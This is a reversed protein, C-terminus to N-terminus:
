PSRCSTAREFQVTNPGFAILKWGHYTDIPYTESVGEPKPPRNVHAEINSLRLIRSVASVYLDGDRFAVGVPMDLKDAIVRLTRPGQLPIAYVKGAHMSGVFLMTKGLAMQRANPVRAFLEVQFGPPLKLLSLPFSSSEAAAQTILALLMAGAVWARGGISLRKM